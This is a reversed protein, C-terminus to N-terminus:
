VVDGSGIPHILKWQQAGVDKFEVPHMLFWAEDKAQEKLEQLSPVHIGFLNEPKINKEVLAYQLTGGNFRIKHKKTDEVMYLIDDDNNIFGETKTYVPAYPIFFQKNM